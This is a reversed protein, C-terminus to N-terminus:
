QQNQESIQSARNTIELNLALAIAAVNHDHATKDWGRKEELERALKESIDQISLLHHSQLNFDKRSFDSALSQIPNEVETYLVIQM